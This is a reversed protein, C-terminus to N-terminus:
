NLLGPFFSSHVHSIFFIIKKELQIYEMMQYMCLLIRKANCITISIKRYLIEKVTQMIKNNFDWLIILISIFYKALNIQICMKLTIEDVKSYKRRFKTFNLALSNTKLTLFYSTKLQLNYTKLFFNRRVSSIKAEM